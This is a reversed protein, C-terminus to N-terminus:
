KQTSDPASVRYLYQTVTRDYSFVNPATVTCNLTLAPLVIPSECAMWDGPRLKGTAALDRLVPERVLFVNLSEDQILPLVASEDHAVVFIRGKPDALRAERLATRMAGVVPFASTEVKERQNLAAYLARPNRNFSLLPSLIVGAAVVALLAWRAGRPTRSEWCFCVLAMAGLVYAGALYRNSWPNYGVSASVVLMAILAGIAMRWWVTRPRWRLLTFVLLGVVLTGVAGYGSLEELGTHSLFLRSDPFRRDIGADTLGTADLLARTGNALANPLPQQGSFDTQGVYLGGGLHRVLNAATGRLGDQNSLRRVLQPPGLPHGYIRATEIYTEVSGLLLLAALTGATFRWVLGLRSRIEWLTLTTLLAAYVVGQSKAGAMFGLALAMWVLHGDRQETRWRNRAYLWVAGAFVLALDNKTSAAQYVLCPLAALTAVAMWAAEAGFRARIMRHAIQATGAFCLYSPLSFGGGLILFPLHVADFGWPFMVQFISTFHDSGFFGGRRALELRAINYMQSDITVVPLVLAALGWYVLGTVALVRSIRGHASLRDKAPDGASM